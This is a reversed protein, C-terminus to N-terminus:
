TLKTITAFKHEERCWWWWRLTCKCDADIPYCQFEDLERSVIQEVNDLNEKFSIFFKDLEIVYNERYKLNKL